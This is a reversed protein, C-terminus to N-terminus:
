SALHVCKVSSKVSTTHILVSVHFVVVVKRLKLSFTCISPEQGTRHIELMIYLLSIGNQDSVRSIYATM